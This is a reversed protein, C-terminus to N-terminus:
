YISIELDPTPRTHSWCSNLTDIRVIYQVLFHRNKHFEQYWKARYDVWMATQNVMVGKQDSDKRIGEDTM